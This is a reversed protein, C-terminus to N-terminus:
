TRGAASTPPSMEAVLDPKVEELMAMADTYVGEVRYRESFANLRSVDRDAAAVLEVDSRDAM